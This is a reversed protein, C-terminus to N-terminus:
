ALNCIHGAALATVQYRTVDSGFDKNIEASVPGSSVGISANFSAGGPEDNYTDVVVRYTGCGQYPVTVENWGNNNAWHGGLYSWSSGNIWPVSVTSDPQFEVKEYAWCGLTGDCATNVNAWAEIGNDQSNYHPTYISKTYAAAEAPTTHAAEVAAVGSLLTGVVAVRSLARTLNHRWGHPKIERPNSLTAPVKESSM